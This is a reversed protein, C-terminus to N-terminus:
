ATKQGAVPQEEAQSELLGLPLYDAVPLGLQQIAAIIHEHGIVGKKQVPPSLHLATIIHGCTRLRGSQPTRSIIRLTKSAKSSLKIGGYSYLSRIDEASYLGGDGNAALDDLNLIMLLRSRFQDLSEYGRRASSQNLTGLLHNNGSIILTCKCRITVIQRLQDLQHVTLASAEDLIIILNRDALNRELRRTLTKLQGSYDKTTAKAIEAFIATSTMTSDLKIYVSNRNVKAFEQLCRSKGHGADGIIMAIKGEEEADSFAETQKIAIDIRKAVATQIFKRNHPNRERRQYSEIFNLVKNILTKHTGTYKGNKFQSLVATSYGVKGSVKTLSLGTSQLFETFTKRAAEIEKNSINSMPIREKGVQVDQELCRQVFDKGTIM